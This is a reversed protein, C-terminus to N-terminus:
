AVGEGNGMYLHCAPLYLQEGVHETRHLHNDTIHGAAPTPLISSLVANGRHSVWGRWPCYHIAVLSPHGRLLEHMSQLLLM